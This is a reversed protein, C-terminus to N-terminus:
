NLLDTSHWKNIEDQMNHDLEEMAYITGVGNVAVWENYWDVTEAFNKILLKKEIMTQLKIPVPTHLIKHEVLKQMEKISGVYKTGYTKLFKQDNISLSTPIYKKEISQLQFQESKTDNYELQLNEKKSELQQSIGSLDSLLYHALNWDKFEIQFIDNWTKKEYQNNFIPLSLIYDEINSLDRDYIFYSGVSFHSDTWQLYALYRDLYKTLMEKPVGIKNRYIDDFTDIKEAHSYVNLKKSRTNICWSLAHELLNNRRASIIFFNENLYNYFPIQDALSDQRNKIHYQALRSTKYHDVSNLLETIESLSQYYGGTIKLQDQSPKGLVEQNFLPSYYKMIGNTLEHLNIVPRDFKHAVMYVTILRQLLTSGVRDPTLILVNM